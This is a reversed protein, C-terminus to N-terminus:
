ATTISSRFFFAINIKYRWSFNCCILVIVLRLISSWIKKQALWVRVNVKDLVWRDGTPLYPKRLQFLWLDTRLVLFPFGFRLGAGVGVAL